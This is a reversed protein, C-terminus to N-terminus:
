AYQSYVVLWEKVVINDHLLESIYVKELHASCTRKDLMCESVQM